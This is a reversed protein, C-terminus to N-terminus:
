LSLAFVDLLQARNDPSLRKNLSLFFSWYTGLNASAQPRLHTILTNLDIYDPWLLDLATGLLYSKPDKERPMDLWDKLVPLQEPATAALAEAAVILIISDEQLDRLVTLLESTLGNLKGKRIVELALLRLDRGFGEKQSLVTRLDQILPECALQGIYPSLQKSDFWERGSYRNVLWRWITVRDDDSLSGVYDHLVTNPNRKIIVQRFSANLACLWGGLDRLRPITEESGASPFFLAALRDARISGQDLLQNLRRAALYVAIGPDAFRYQGDLYKEFLQTSFVEREASPPEKSLGFPVHKELDVGFEAIIEKGSMQTSIAYHESIERKKSLSVETAGLDQRYENYEQLRIDIVREYLERLDKSYRGSTLYDQVLMQLTEPRQLFTKAQSPLQSFFSGTDIGQQICYERVAREDLDLLALVIYGHQNTTKGNEVSQFLDSWVSEDIRTWDSERCSLHVRLRSFVGAGFKRLWQVLYGIVKLADLKGEDLADIFLEGELHSELCKRWRLRTEEEFATEPEEPRLLNRLPLYFSNEIKSCQFLFEKTKGHRPPGLLVISRYGKYYDWVRPWVTDDKDKFFRDEFSTKNDDPVYIFEGVRVVKQRDAYKCFFRPLHIDKIM